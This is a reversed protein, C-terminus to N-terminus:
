RFNRQHAVQNSQEDVRPTPVSVLDRSTLYLMRSSPAALNNIRFGLVTGGSQFSLALLYLRVPYIYINQTSEELKRPSDPIYCGLRTGQFNLANTM